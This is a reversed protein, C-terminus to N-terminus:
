EVGLPNVMGEKQLPAVGCDVTDRGEIPLSTVETLVTMCYVKHSSNIEQWESFLKITWKM